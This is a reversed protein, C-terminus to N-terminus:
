HLLMIIQKNRFLCLFYHCINFNYTNDLQTLFYTYESKGVRFYEEINVCPKCWTAGFKLVVSMCQTSQFVDQISSNGPLKIYASKGYKLIFFFIYIYFLLYLSPKALHLVSKDM